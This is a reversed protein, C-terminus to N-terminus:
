DPPRNIRGNQLRVFSKHVFFTTTLSAAAMSLHVFCKVEETVFDADSTGLLAIVSFVAVVLLNYAESCIDFGLARALVKAESGARSVRFFWSAKWLVLCVSLIAVAAVVSELMRLAPM